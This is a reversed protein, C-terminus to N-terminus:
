EAEGVITHPSYVETPEVPAHEAEVQAQMEVIMQRLELERAENGSMNALELEARANELLTQSLSM